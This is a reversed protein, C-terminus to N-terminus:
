HVFLVELQSETICVALRNENVYLACIISEFRYILSIQQIKSLLLSFSLISVVSHTSSAGARDM